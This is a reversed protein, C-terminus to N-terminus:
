VSAAARVFVVDIVKDGYIREVGRKGPPGARGPVRKKGLLETAYKCKHGTVECFESILKGRALRGTYRPYRDRMKELYENRSKQSMPKAM